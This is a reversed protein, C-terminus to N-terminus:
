FINNINEDEFSVVCNDIPKNKWDNKENEKRKKCITQNLLCIILFINFFILIVIILIENGSLFDM